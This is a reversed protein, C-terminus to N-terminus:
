TCRYLRSAFGFAPGPPATQMLQSFIATYILSTALPQAIAWFFGLPTGLYRSVFDRKVSSLIFGRFDWCERLMGVRFIPMSAM